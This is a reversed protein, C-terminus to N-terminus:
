GFRKKKSKFHLGVRVRGHDFGFHNGVSDLIKITICNICQHIVKVYKPQPVHFQKSDINPSQIAESVNIVDLIPVLISGVRSWQVIDTYIFMDEIYFNLNCVESLYIKTIPNPTRPKPCIIREGEKSDSFGLLFRFPKGPIWIWPKNPATFKFALKRKDEDFEATIGFGTTPQVKALLRDKIREPVEGHKHVYEKVVDKLDDNKNSQNGEAAKTFPLVVDDDDSHKSGEDVGKVAPSLVHLQDEEESDDDIDMLSESSSLRQDKLTSEDQEMVVMQEGGEDATKLTGNNTRTRAPVHPKKFYSSRLDAYSATPEYPLKPVWSKDAEVLKNKTDAGWKGPTVAWMNIYSTFLNFTEVWKQPTYQGPPFLFEGYLGADHPKNEEFSGVCIRRDMDRSINYVSTPITVDTVAVQWIKKINTCDIPKALPIKFEGRNNRPYLGHVDGDSPLFVQFDDDEQM